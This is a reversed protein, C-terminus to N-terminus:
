SSVNKKSGAGAVPVGRERLKRLAKMGEEDLEHRQAAAQLRQLEFEPKSLEHPMWEKSAQLRDAWTDASDDKVWKFRQVDEGTAHPLKKKVWGEHLERMRNWMLEASRQFTQMQTMTMMKTGPMRQYGESDAHLTLEDKNGWQRREKSVKFTKRRRQMETQLRQRLESPEPLAQKDLQDPLWKLNTGVRFKEGWGSQYYNDKLGFRRLVQVSAHMLLRLVALIQGHM